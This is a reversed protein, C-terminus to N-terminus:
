DVGTVGISCQVTSKGDGPRLHWGLIEGGGMREPVSIRKGLAEWRM